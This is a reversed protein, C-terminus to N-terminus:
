GIKELFLSYHSGSVIRGVKYEKALLEKIKDLTLVSRLWGYEDANRVYFGIPWGLPGRVTEGFLQLNVPELSPEATAPEGEVVHPPSIEIVRCDSLHARHHILSQALKTVFYEHIPRPLATRVDMHFSGGPYLEMTRELIPELFNVSALDAKEVAQAVIRSGVTCSNQDSPDEAAVGILTFELVRLRNVRAGPEHRIQTELMLAKAEIDLGVLWFLIEARYAEKVTIGVKTTPPPPGGRIGKVV